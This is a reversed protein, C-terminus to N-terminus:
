YKNASGAELISHEKCYQFISLTKFYLLKFLKLIIFIFSDVFDIILM